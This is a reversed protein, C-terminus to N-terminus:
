FSDVQPKRLSSVRGVSCKFEHDTEECDVQGRSVEPGGSFGTEEAGEGGRCERPVPDGRFVGRQGPLRHREVTGRGRAGQERRRRCLLSGPVTVGM